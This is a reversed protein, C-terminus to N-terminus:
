SRTRYPQALEVLMERVEVLDGVGTASIIKIAHLTIQATDTLDSFKM